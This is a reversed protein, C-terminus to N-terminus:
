VLRIAVGHGNQQTAFDEINVDVSPACEGVSSCLGRFYAGDGKDDVPARLHIDSDRIWASWECSNFGVRRYLYSGTLNSRDSRFSARLGSPAQKVPLVSYANERVGVTRPLWALGLKARPEM